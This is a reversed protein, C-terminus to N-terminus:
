WKFEFQLKLTLYCDDLQIEWDFIFEFVLYFSNVGTM